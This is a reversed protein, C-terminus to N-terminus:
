VDRYAALTNELNKVIQSYFNIQQQLYHEMMNKFSDTRAKHFNNIEAMVSYSVVDARSRLANLEGAPLKGADGLKESDKLKQASSKQVYLIEPFSALLGRYIHLTDLMPDVDHRPQEEFMKGINEYTDGTKKIAETLGASFKSPDQEFAQGLTRFAQGMKEYERKFPGMHRKANDAASSHLFRVSNDMAKAFAGFSNMDADLDNTIPKAPTRISLLFAGGVLEDKEAQRKGVKWRKEDTCELFHRWVDCQSLVPHTCLHNVWLQLQAMRHEIFDDEYRGTVQKDPLPPIPILVFKETLREHLWDFHKYRRAVQVNTYSPTLQYAIYSKLGKLKSEKKPSFVECTYPRGNTGWTPGWQTDTISVVSGDPVSAKLKGLLYNEAGSKVFVSFRNLNGKVSAQAAFAPNNVATSSSYTPELQRKAAGAGGTASTARSGEQEKEDESDEDWEDDWDAGAPEQQPASAAAAPAAAPAPTDWDSYGASAAAPQTYYANQPVSPYLNSAAPAAPQAASDQIEEVYSAPFLGTEGRVSGEWWGEGVDKKTVTVIENEFINLENSGPQAQFDYLVRAKSAM